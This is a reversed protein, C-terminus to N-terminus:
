LDFGLQLLVFAVGFFVMLPGLITMMIIQFMQIARDFRTIPLPEAGATRLTAAEILSIKEEHRHRWGFIALWCFLVGVALFVLAFIM